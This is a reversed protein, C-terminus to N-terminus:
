AAISYHYHNGKKHAPFIPEQRQHPKYPACNREADTKKSSLGQPKAKRLKGHEDM